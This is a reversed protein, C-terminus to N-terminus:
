YPGTLRKQLPCLASIFNITDSMRSIAKREACRHEDDGPM